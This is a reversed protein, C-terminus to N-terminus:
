LLTGFQTLSGCRFLAGHSFSCVLRADLSCRLVHAASSLLVPFPSGFLELTGCSLLRVFRPCRLFRASYCSLVTTFSGRIHLTGPGWPSDAFYLLVSILSFFGAALISPVTVYSGCYDLAGCAHLRFPYSYRLTLASFPFLVSHASGYLSLTGFSSHTLRLPPSFREKRASLLCLVTERFRFLIGRFATTGSLM